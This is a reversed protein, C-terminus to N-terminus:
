PATGRPLSLTKKRKCLLRSHTIRCLGAALPRPLLPGGQTVDPCLFLLGSDLWLLRSTGLDRQARAPIFSHLISQCVYCNFFQQFGPNMKAMLGFPPVGFHFLEDEGFAVADM